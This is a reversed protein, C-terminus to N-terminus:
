SKNNAANPDKNKKKYSGRKKKPAPQQEEGPLTKGSYGPLTKGAAAAAAQQKKTPKKPKKVKKGDEDVNEQKGSQNGQSQKGQSQQQQLQQQALTKQQNLLHQQQQLPSMGQMRQQQQLQLLRQQQLQQQQGPTLSGSNSGFPRSTLNASMTQQKMKEKKLRYQEVFRLRTFQSPDSGTDGLSGHGRDNMILMFQEYESNQQPLDDHLDKFPKFAKSNPDTSELRHNHIVEGTEKNIKPYESKPRLESSLNYPNLPVSLDLNRKTLTLIESEMSIGLHDSFRQLASDTQYLLDYFLSLQTPKLLTKFSRPIKKTEKQKTTENIIEKEISNRHDYIRLIICGEYFRIGADRLVEVIAHPIEERAVYELFDKVLQSNKSINGDQNGFRYHNEHIHFELSPEANEYKKLLDQTTEAFKYNRRQVPSRLSHTNGNLQHQQRQQQALPSSRHQAQAQAAAVAQQQAFQGRTGNVPIGNVPIGVKMDNFSRKNNEQQNVSM